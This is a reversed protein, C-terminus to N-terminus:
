IIIGGMGGGYIGHHHHSSVGPTSIPLGQAAAAAASINDIVM